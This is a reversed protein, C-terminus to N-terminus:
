GIRWMLVILTLVGVGEGWSRGQWSSGKGYASAYRGPRTQIRTGDERLKDTYVDIDWTMTPTLVFEAETGFQTRASLRTKEYPIQM